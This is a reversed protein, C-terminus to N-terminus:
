NSKRSQRMAEAIGKMGLTRRLDKPIERGASIHGVAKSVLENQAGPLLREYVLPKGANTTGTSPRTQIRKLEKSRGKKIRAAASETPAVPEPGVARQPTSSGSGQEVPLGVSARGSYVQREPKSRNMYSKMATVDRHQKGHKTILASLNEPTAKMQQLSGTSDREGVWVHGPRALASKNTVEGTDPHRNAIVEDVDRGIQDESKAKVTTQLKGAAAGAANVEKSSVPSGIGYASLAGSNLSKHVGALIAHAEKINKHLDIPPLGEKFKSLRAGTNPDTAKQSNLLASAEVLNNHVGLHERIVRQNASGRLFGSADQLDKVGPHREDASAVRSAANDYEQARKDIVNPLNDLHSKLTNHLAMVKDWAQSANGGKGEPTEKATRDAVSKQLGPSSTAALHELVRSHEKNANERKVLAVNSTDTTRVRSTTAKQARESMKEKVTANAAEAASSTRQAPTFINNEDTEGYGTPTAKTLDFAGGSSTVGEVSSSAAKEGAQKRAAPSDLSASDTALAHKAVADLFVGVSRAM